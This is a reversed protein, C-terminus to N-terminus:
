RNEDSSPVMRMDIMNAPDVARDVVHVGAPV